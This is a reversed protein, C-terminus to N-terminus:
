AGVYDPENGPKWKVNCGVAPIQNQDVDHGELVANLAQRLDRGTPTIGNNPRADDFQGRYVLTRDGDFLYFEPTCAAQFAKAVEQLEDYLYPFTYGYKEADAKMAAPSDDPYKEVDNASVAVVAVGKKQAEAAFSTFEEKILKVYPCHNCIIAVVIAPADAYDDTSVVNGDPDPLSFEPLPTGLALMTSPTQVM